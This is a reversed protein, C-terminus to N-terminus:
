SGHAFRHRMEASSAAAFRQAAELAKLYDSYRRETDSVLPSTHVRM